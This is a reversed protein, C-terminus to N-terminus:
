SLHSFLGTSIANQDTQLQGIEDDEAAAQEGVDEYDESNDSDSNDLYRRVVMGSPIAILQMNGGTMKCGEGDVPADVVFFGKRNLEIVDGAKLHVMAEEGVADVLRQEAGLVRWDQVHQALSEPKGGGHNACYDFGEDLWYGSCQDAHTSGSVQHRSNVDEQEPKEGSRGARWRVRVPTTYKLAIKTLRSAKALDMHAGTRPDRQVDRGVPPDSFCVFACRTLLDALTHM